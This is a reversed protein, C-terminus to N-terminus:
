HQQLDGGAVKTSDAAGHAACRRVGKKNGTKDTATSSSWASCNSGPRGRRTCDNCTPDGEVSNTATPQYRWKRGQQACATSPPRASSAADSMGRRTTASAQKL